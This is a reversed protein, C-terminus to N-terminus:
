KERMELYARDVTWGIMQDFMQNEQEIDAVFRRRFSQLLADSASEKVAEEASLGADWSATSFAVISEMLQRATTLYEKGELIPGGHGILIKDVELSELASLTKIYDQPYSSWTWLIPKTLIDGVILVRQDPVYVVVDGRTHAPYLYMAQVTNVKSHLTLSRDITVGPLTFEFASGTTVFGQQAEHFKQIASRQADTLTETDSRLAAGAAELPMSRYPATQDFQERGLTPIDERTYDHAIIDVEGMHNELYAENGSHHDVHWHTNIVYRIPKDTLERISDILTTSSAPTSHSDVVIVSTDIIIVAANAGAFNPEVAYIGPAAQTLTHAGTDLEQTAAPLLWFCSVLVLITSRSDTRVRGIVNIM